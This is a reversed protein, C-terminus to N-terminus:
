RLDDLNDDVEVGDEDIAPDPEVDGLDVDGTRVGSFDSEFTLSASLTVGDLVECGAAYTIAITGSDMQDYHNNRELVSQTFNGEATSIGVAICNEDWSASLGLLMTFAGSTDIVGALRTGPEGITGINVANLLANDTGLPQYIAVEDWYAETPCSFNPDSCFEDYEISFEGLELTGGLAPDIEAILEDGWYVRMIDSHTLEYNGEAYVNEDLEWCATASALMAVLIASGSALRIVTHVTNM